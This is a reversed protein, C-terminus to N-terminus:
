VKRVGRVELIFYINGKEVNWTESIKLKSKTLPEKEGHMLNRRGKFNDGTFLRAKSNMQKNLM